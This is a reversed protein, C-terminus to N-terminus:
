GSAPLFGIAGVASLVALAAAPTILLPITWLVPNRRLAATRRHSLLALALAVLAIEFVTTAV